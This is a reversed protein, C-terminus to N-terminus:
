DLGAERHAFLYDYDNEKDSHCMLGQARATFSDDSGAAM